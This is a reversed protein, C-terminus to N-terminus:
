KMRKSTEGDWGDTVALSPFMQYFIKWTRKSRKKSPYRVKNRNSGGGGIYVGKNDRGEPIPKKKINEKQAKREIELRRWKQLLEDDSMGLLNSIEFIRMFNRYTRKFREPYYKSEFVEKSNKIKESKFEDFGKGFYQVTMPLQHISLLFTLERKLKREM